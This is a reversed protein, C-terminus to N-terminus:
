EGNPPCVGSSCIANPRSEPVLAPRGDPATSSLGGHEVFEFSAACDGQSDM